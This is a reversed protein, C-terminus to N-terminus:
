IREERLEALRKSCQGDPVHTINREISRITPPSVNFEKAILRQDEGRKVRSRIVQAQEYTIKTTSKRRSNDAMSVWRCNSPEYDGDNDIRDISLGERWGSALAWQAFLIISDRWESCVKIGRGGYRYYKPHSKRLCRGKMNQWSNYFGPNEKNGPAFGHSYRGNGKGRSKTYDRPM